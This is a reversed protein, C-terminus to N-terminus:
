PGVVVPHWGTTWMAILGVIVILGIIGLPSVWGPAAVVGTAPGPAARYGYTGYGWGSLALVAIIILCITLIDM